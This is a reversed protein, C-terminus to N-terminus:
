FILSADGGSNKMLEEEFSRMEEDRFEAQVAKSNWKFERSLIFVREDKGTELIWDAMTKTRVFIQSLNLMDVENEKKKDEVKVIHYGIPSQIIESREGKDLDFVSVAVEPLMQDFCFWGLEGGQSASEGESYKRATESFGKGDELEAEAKKIKDEAESYAPDGKRINEFLKEKYMDPRVINEKFDELNWGYLKDLNEVLTESSGYEKLKRDVEQDIIEQTVKIGRANAEAQIMSEEILKNLINKQKIKLKKQGEPTSFDVRLGLDSFDQNTYFSEVSKLQSAIKDATIIDTGVIAAPYPIISATKRIMANDVGSFYIWVGVIIIYSSIIILVSYVITPLKIKKDM